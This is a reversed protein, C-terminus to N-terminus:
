EKKSAKVIDRQTHLQDMMMILRWGVLSLMLGFGTIYANREKRLQSNRELWYGIGTPTTETTDWSMSRICDLFCFLQVLWVARLTVRVAGHSRWVATFLKLVLGRVANSPMPMVLVTVVIAEFCTFGLLGTWLLTHM